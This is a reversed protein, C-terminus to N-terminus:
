NYSNRIQQVTIEVEGTDVNLESEIVHCDTLPFGSLYTDTGDLWVNANATSGTKIELVEGLWQPDVQAVTVRLKPWTTITPWQWTLITGYAAAWGTGAAVQLFLCLGRIIAWWLDVQLGIGACQPWGPSPPRDGYDYVTALGDDIKCEAHCKILVDTTTQWASDVNIREKYYLTFPSITRIRIGIHQGNVVGCPDSKYAGMSFRQSTDGSAGIHPHTHFLRRIPLSEESETGSVFETIEPIDAGSLGPTIAKVERLSGEGELFEFEQQNVDGAQLVHRTQPAATWASDYVKTFWVEADEGVIRLQGKCKWAKTEVALLDWAHRFRYISASNDVGKGDDCLAGAIWKATNTASEAAPYVAGPFYGSTGIADGPAANQAYNQKRLTWHDKPTAGTANAASSFQLGATPSRMYATYVEAAADRIAGILYSYSYGAVKYQSPCATVIHNTTAVRFFLEFLDDVLVPVTTNILLTRIDDPRVEELAIRILHLVTIEYVVTANPLGANIIKGKRSPRGRQAGVFLTVPDGSGIKQYLRFTTTTDFTRSGPYHHLTGAGVATPSLLLGRLAMMDGSTSFASLDFKITMSPTLPMGLPRGDDYKCNLKGLALHCDTPIEVRTPSSLATASAGWIELGMTIDDAGRWEKWYVTNSM